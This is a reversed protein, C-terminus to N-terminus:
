KYNFNDNEVKNKILGMCSLKIYDISSRYNDIAVQLLWPNVIGSVMVFIMLIIIILAKFKYPKLYKILKMTLEKKSRRTIEEDKVIENYSM